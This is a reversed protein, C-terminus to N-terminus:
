TDYLRANTSQLTFRCRCGLTFRSSDSDSVGTLDDSRTMRAWAYSVLRAVHIHCPFPCRSTSKMTPLSADALLSSSFFATVHARCLAGSCFLSSAFGIPLSIPVSNIVVFCLQTGSFMTILGIPLFLRPRM